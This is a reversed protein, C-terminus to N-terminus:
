RLSHHLSVCIYTPLGPRTTIPPSERVLPRPNSDRCRISSPSKKSLISIFLIFCSSFISHFLPFAFLFSSFYFCFFLFCLYFIFRDSRWTLHKKILGDGAEKEEDKWRLKLVTSLFYVQRHSSELQLYRIKSAIARGVGGCRQGVDFSINRFIPWGRGRKRKNEDKWVFM